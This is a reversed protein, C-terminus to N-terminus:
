EPGFRKWPLARCQPRQRVRHDPGGGHHGRFKMEFHGEDYWWVTEGAAPLIVLNGVRSWFATSPADAGFFGQEVLETTPVM